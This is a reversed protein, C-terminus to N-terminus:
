GIGGFLRTLQNGTGVFQTKHNCTKYTKNSHKDYRGLSRGGSDFMQITKSNEVSGGLTHGESDEYIEKM